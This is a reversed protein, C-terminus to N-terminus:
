YCDPISQSDRLCGQNVDCPLPTNTGHNKAKLPLITLGTIHIHIWIHIHICLSVHTIPKKPIYTITHNWIFKEFM